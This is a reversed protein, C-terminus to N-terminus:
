EGRLRVKGTDSSAKILPGGDNITGMKFSKSGSGDYYQDDMDVGVSGSDTSLEYNADIDVPVKIEIDGTDVDADLGDSSINLVKINLDGTDGSVRHVFDCDWVKIDGTNSFVMDVKSSEYIRINGTSTEAKVIHEVAKVWLDGTSTKFTFNGVGFIPRESTGERGQNNMWIDGTETEATINGFSSWLIIDGTNCSLKTEGHIERVHINGTEVNVMSVNMREPIHIKLDMWVWDYKREHFSSVKVNDTDDVRLEVKDLQDEGFYTKKIGVIKIEEDEWTTIEVSGKDNLDVILEQGERYELTREVEQTDLEFYGMAGIYILAILAIVVIFATLIGFAKWRPKL